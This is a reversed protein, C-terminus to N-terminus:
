GISFEYMRKGRLTVKCGIAHGRPPPVWGGVQPWANRGAETRCDADARDVAEELAEKEGIASGVGMNIV